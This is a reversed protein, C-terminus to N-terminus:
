GRKRLKRYLRQRENVHDRNRAAWKAVSIQRCKRCNRSGSKAIYTNAENYEHGKPCHTRAKLYAGTEGRQSNTAHPVAELHDPNVCKRVRCLHDLEMGKPVPGYKWEYAVRHALLPKSAVVSFKGYGEKAIYGTWEWCGRETKRVKDMFRKLMITM